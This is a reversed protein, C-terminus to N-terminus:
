LIVSGLLPNQLVGVLAGQPGGGVLPGVILKGVVVVVAVGLINLELLGAGVVTAGALEQLRDAIVAKGELDAHLELAAVAIVALGATREPLLGNAIITILLRMARLEAGGGKGVVPGRNEMRKGKPREKWPRSKVIESCHGKGGM